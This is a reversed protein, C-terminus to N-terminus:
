LLAWTLESCLERGEGPLPFCLGATAGLQDARCCDWPFQGLPLVPAKWASTEQCPLLAGLEFGQGTDMLSWMKPPKEWLVGSGRCGLTEEWLHPLHQIHCPAGM